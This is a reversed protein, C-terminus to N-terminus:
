GSIKMMKTMKKIETHHLFQMVTYLLDRIGAAGTGPHRFSFHRGPIGLMGDDLLKWWGLWGLIKVIKTM